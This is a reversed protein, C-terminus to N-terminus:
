VFAPKLPLHRTINYLAIIVTKDKLQALNIGTETHFFVPLESLDKESIKDKKSIDLISWEFEFNKKKMKGAAISWYV